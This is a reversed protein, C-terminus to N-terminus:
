HQAANQVHKFFFHANIIVFSPVFPTYVWWVGSKFRRIREIRQTPQQFSMFVNTVLLVAGKYVTFSTKIQNQNFLSFRGFLRSFRRKFLAGVRGTVLYTVGTEPKAWNPRRWNVWNRRPRKTKAKQGSDRAFSPQTHHGQMSKTLGTEKQIAWVFSTSLLVFECDISLFMNVKIPRNSYNQGSSLPPGLRFSLNRKALM